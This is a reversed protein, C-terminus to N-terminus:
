REQLEAQLRQLNGVPSPKVTVDMGNYEEVKFNDKHEKYYRLAQAKPYNNGCKLVANDISKSIISKDVM